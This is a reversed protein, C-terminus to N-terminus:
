ERETAEGEETQWASRKAAFETHTNAPPNPVLYHPGLSSFVQGVNFDSLSRAGADTCFAEFQDEDLRPLNKNCFDLLAEKATM